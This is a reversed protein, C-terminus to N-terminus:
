LKVAIVNINTNDFIFEIIKVVDARSLGDIGCGIMDPIIVYYENNDLMQNKMDELSKKLSDLTPLMSTLEKTILNYTNDIKVSKGVLSPYYQVANAGQVRSSKIYSNRIPKWAPSLNVFAAYEFLKHKMNYRVVFERAIGGFMGFDSAICHALRLDNKSIGLREAISELDFVDGKICHLM